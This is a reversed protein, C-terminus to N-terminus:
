SNDELPTTTLEITLNKMAIAELGGGSNSFSTVLGVFFDAGRDVTGGYRVCFAYKNDSRAATRLITQGDDDDDRGLTATFSGDNYVGKFKDTNRKALASYTVVNYETGYEGLEQLEGVEEWTGVKTGTTPATTGSQRDSSFEALLAPLDDQDDVPAVFFQAGAVQTIQNPM